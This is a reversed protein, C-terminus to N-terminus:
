PKPRKRIHKFYHLIHTAYAAILGIVWFGLTIAMAPM